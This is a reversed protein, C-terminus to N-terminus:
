PNRPVRTLIYAATNPSNFSAPPVPRSGDRSIPLSLRLTDGSVRYLGIWKGGDTATTDTMRIRRPVSLTDLSFPHTMLDAHPLQRMTVTSETFEVTGRDILGDIIMAPENSMRARADVVRWTGELAANDSLGYNRGATPPVADALTMVQEVIKDIGPIESQREGYCQYYSDYAQDEEEISRRVPDPSSKFASDLRAGCGALTDIRVATPALMIFIRNQRVVSVLVKEPPWRGVDQAERILMASVIGRREADPVSISAYRFVAAHSGFADMFTSPVRLASDVTQRRGELWNSMLSPTTVILRRSWSETRYVLGDLTECGEEGNCIAELNIRGPQPFGPVNVPGIISRLKRELNALAPKQSFTSQARSWADRAERRARIYDAEAATQGQLTSVSAFLLASYLLALRRTM